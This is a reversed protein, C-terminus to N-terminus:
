KGLLYDVSTNFYNSIKLLLEPTPMREESEYYGIVRSSLNIKEGLEKQTLNHEKRLSKIRKGLM